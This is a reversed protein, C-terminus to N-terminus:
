PKKVASPAGPKASNSMTDQGGKPAAKPGANPSTGGAGGNLREQIARADALHKAVTPRVEDVLAKLEPNKADVALRSDIMDLTVQHDMVMLDIYTKDIDTPAAAKLTETQKTTDSRLAASKEGDAPTVNLKQALKTGKENAQTHHQIMMKAFAKVDKNKAKGEVAKSEEIEKRNAADLMAFIQEDSLSAAAPAPTPASTTSPATSPSESMSTPASAPEPNGMTSASQPSQTEDPVQAETREDSSCGIVFALAAAISTLAIALREKRVM